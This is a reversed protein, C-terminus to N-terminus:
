RGSNVPLRNGNGTLVARTSPYHFGPKVHIPRCCVADTRIKVVVWFYGLLEFQNPQLRGGGSEERVGIEFKLYAGLTRVNYFVASYMFFKDNLLPRWTEGISSGNVYPTGGAGNSSYSPPGDYWLHRVEHRRSKMLQKYEAVRLKKGDV